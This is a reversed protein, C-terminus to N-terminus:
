APVAGGEGALHRFYEWGSLEPTELGHAGLTSCVHARHEEGHHVAQTLFLGTAHEVEPYPEPGGEAPMTADLEDLRDLLERWRRAQAEMSARLATVPPPEVLRPGPDEGLIRLQYRGDSRVLHALTAHISGFTGPTTLELQAPSLELCRDILRLTAWIHHDVITRLHDVGAPTPRSARPQPM